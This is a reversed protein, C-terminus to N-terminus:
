CMGHRPAQYPVPEPAPPAELWLASVTPPRLPLARDRVTEGDQCFVPLPAAEVRRHGPKAKVPFPLGPRPPRRGVAWRQVAFVDAVGGTVPMAQPAGAGPRRRDVDAPPREGRRQRFVPRRSRVASAHMGYATKGRNVRRPRRFGDTSLARLGRGGRTAPSSTPHIPCTWGTRPPASPPSRGRAQRRRIGLGAGLSLPRKTGIGPAFRSILPAQSRRGRLSLWGPHGLM